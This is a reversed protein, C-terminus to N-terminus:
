ESYHFRISLIQKGSKTDYYFVEPQLKNVEFGARELVGTMKGMQKEWHSEGQNAELALSELTTNIQPDLTFQEGNTSLVRVNM